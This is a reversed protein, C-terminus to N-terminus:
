LHFTLLFEEYPIFDRPIQLFQLTGVLTPTVSLRAATSLGGSGRYHQKQEIGNPKLLNLVHMVTFVITVERKRRTNKLNACM